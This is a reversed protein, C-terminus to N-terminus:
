EEMMQCKRCFFVLRDDDGLECRCISNYSARQEERCREGYIRIADALCTPCQAEKFHRYHPCDSTRLHEAIGEPTM